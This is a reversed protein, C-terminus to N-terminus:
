RARLQWGDCSAVSRAREASDGVRPQRWIARGGSWNRRVGHCDCGWQCDHRRKRRSFGLRHWVARPHPGAARPGHRCGLRAAMEQVVALGVTILIMMWLLDYGFKAGVSSYTAIGGADDGAMAAILGPGLIALVAVPGHARQRLRRLPISRGRIQLRLGPAAFRSFM